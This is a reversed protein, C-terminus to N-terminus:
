RASLDDMKMWNDSTVHTDLGEAVAWALVEDLRNAYPNDPNCKFLGRHALLRCCRWGIDSMESPPLPKEKEAKEKELLLIARASDNILFATPFASASPSRKHFAFAAHLLTPHPGHAAQWDYADDLGDAYQRAIEEWRPATAETQAHPWGTHGPHQNHIHWVFKIMREIPPKM